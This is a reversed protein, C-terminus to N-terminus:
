PRTGSLRRARQDQYLSRPALRSKGIGELFDLPLSGEGSDMHLGFPLTVGFLDQVPDADTSYVMMRTTGIVYGQGYQCSWILGPNEITPSQPGRINWFVSETVSHGAGSSMTLRNLAKWGDHIDSDEVLNAMALYGHYDCFAPFGLRVGFLDLLRDDYWDMYMWSGVSRIRSFVCGSTGYESSTTFNHRGRDGVSSKVLIESSTGILYMYGNGGPGRHQPRAMHCGEVTVRKSASVHIGHSLLHRGDTEKPHNTGPRGNAFSHVNRVWCDATGALRLASIGVTEWADAYNVANSVALDEVGCERVYGSELRISASDRRKLAYRLPVDLVITRSPRHISRIERRFFTKWRNRWLNWHETMGHEARFADTIVFGVAIEDGVRLGDVTQLRLSRSRNAGDSVLRIERALDPNGNGVRLHAQYNIGQWRTFLLRTKEPGEGRIVVRSGPVQLQGDIRYLGAPLFVVGGGRYVASQIAQQIAETTDANGQTDVGSVRFVPGRMRPLEEGSRYGAYSFDHLFRGQADTQASNWGVPFLVSRWYYSGCSVLVFCLFVTFGRFRPKRIAGWISM